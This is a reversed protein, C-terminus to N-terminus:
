STVSCIGFRKQTRPVTLNQPYFVLTSIVIAIIIVVDDALLKQLSTKYQANRSLSKIPMLMMRVKLNPVAACLPLLKGLTM